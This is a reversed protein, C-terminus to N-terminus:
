IGRRLMRVSWTSHLLATVGAAVGLVILPSPESMALELGGRLLAALVGMSVAVALGIALVRRTRRRVEAAEETDLVDVVIRHHRVFYYAYAITTAIAAGYGALFPVLALGLVLNIAVTIAAIRMRADARGLQNLAISPLPAISSMVLFGGMAMLMPWSGAYQGGIAAFTEPALVCLVVVGGVNLTTLFALWQAYLRLGGAGAGAIRPAVIGAITVAPATVLAQLKIVLAYPAVDALPHFIGIVFQDIQGFVAILLSVLFISRGYVAVMQLSAARRDLEADAATDGDPVDSRAARGPLLLLVWGISSVVAGSVITALLMGSATPDGARVWLVLALEGVPQAVTLLLLLRIRRLSPLIGFFFSITSQTIVLLALYPLLPHLEGFPEGPVLWALAVLVAAVAIIGLRALATRIVLRTTGRGQAVYRALASTFGLDLAMVAIVCVGFVIAYGGYQQKSLANAVLLATVSSCGMAVVRALLSLAADRGVGRDSSM